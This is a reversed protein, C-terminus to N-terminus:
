EPQNAKRARWAPLLAFEMNELGDSIAEEYCDHAARAVPFNQAMDPLSELALALDKAGGSVGMLKAEALDGDIAEAIGPLFLGAIKNAGASDGLLDAALNRDIGAKETICFAEGLAAFYVLLPLNIALKMAAGAGVDGIREVRRCLKDLTPRAKEVAAEDGAALGLLQGHRAPPVTGGVPCEVFMGGAEHIKGAIQRITPAAMTSMEIVLTNSLDITALGGPGHCVASAADDDLVISIVVDCAAAVEAPTDCFRAGLAILTEARARTRNWVAIDDGLEILREAMASGMRGTGCIGITM